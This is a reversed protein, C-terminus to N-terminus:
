EDWRAPQLQIQAFVDPLHESLLRDIQFARPTSALPRRAHIRDNEWYRNWDQTETIFMSAYNAAKAQPYAAEVELCGNLCIDVYSQVIPYRPTPVVRMDDPVTYIWLRAAAPLSESGDLMVVDQAPINERTYRAERKDLEALETSTVPYVVGNCRTGQRVQVALFCTSFGIPNGHIWWGRAVNHVIVPAAFHAGPNTRTRSTRDILSGYGFVYDQPETM